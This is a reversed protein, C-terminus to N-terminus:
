SATNHTENVLEATSLYGLTADPNEKIVARGNGYLKKFRSIDRPLPKREDSKQVNAEEIM